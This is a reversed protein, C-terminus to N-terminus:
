IVNNQLRLQERHLKVGSMTSNLVTVDYSEKLTTINPSSSTEINGRLEKKVVFAFGIFVCITIM